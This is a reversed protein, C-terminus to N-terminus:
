EQESAIIAKITHTHLKVCINGQKFAITPNALRENDGKPSSMKVSIGSNNGGSISNDSIDSTDSENSLLTALPPYNTSLAQALEQCTQAQSNIVLEIHEWGEVPYTKESPYPLEVCDIKYPGLMLPQNLEIILIPRGNIMNKSIINGMHSFEDELASAAQASNVRLAVHDCDLRADSLGLTDIFSLISQSFAQWDNLLTKYSITM